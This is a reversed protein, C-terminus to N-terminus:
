AVALRSALYCNKPPPPVAAIEIPFGMNFYFTIVLHFKNQHISLYEIGIAIFKVISHTASKVSIVQVLDLM